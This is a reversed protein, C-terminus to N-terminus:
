YLKLIEDYKDSDENKSLNKKKFFTEIELRHWIKLEKKLVKRAFWVDFDVTNDVKIKEKKVINKKKYKSM